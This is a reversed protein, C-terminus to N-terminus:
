AREWQKNEFNYKKIVNAPNGAAITYEPVDKTVVAGAAIVAKKGITVGGLIIVNNGIWVGDEVIIGKSVELSNDLYSPTLPNLGHNYDIMFVDSSVLVDNGITVKNACQVTFHRTAHFNEGITICPTFGDAIYCLLKSNSGVYFGEKVNVFQPRNVQLSTDFCKVRNRKLFLRQNNLGLIKDKLERYKYRLLRHMAVM